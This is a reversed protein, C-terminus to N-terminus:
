LVWGGFMMIMLIPWYLNISNRKKALLHKLFIKSLPISSGSARHKKWLPILFSFLRLKIFFSSFYGMICIFGIVILFGLGYNQVKVHGQEDRYTFIPLLSDISSVIWYITYATIAVPAIVLLGQLFYQFIKNFRFGEQNTPTDNM